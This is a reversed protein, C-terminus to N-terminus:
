AVFGHKLSVSGFDKCREQLSLVAWGLMDGTM